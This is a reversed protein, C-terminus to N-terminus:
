SPYLDLTIKGIAEVSGIGVTTLIKGDKVEAHYGSTSILEVYRSQNSLITGLEVPESNAWSRVVVGHADGGVAKLTFGIQYLIWSDNGIPKAYNVTPEIIQFYDRAEKKIPNPTPQTGQYVGLAIIAVFIIPLAIIIVTKRRSKRAKRKKRM